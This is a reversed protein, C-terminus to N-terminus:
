IKRFSVFMSNDVLIGTVLISASIVLLVAFNVSIKKKLMFFVLVFGVVLQSLQAYRMLTSNNNLSFLMSDAVYMLWFMAIYLLIGKKNKDMNIVM